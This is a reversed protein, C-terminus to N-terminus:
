QKSSAHVEEKCHKCHIEVTLHVLEEIDALSTKISDPNTHEDVLITLEGAYIQHGISWTHLDCIEHEYPALASRIKDSVAQSQHDLLTATCEQILSRAWWLILAAGLIGMAPDLFAASFYKGAVLAAIALLSTLADTIIHLYIAKFNSDHEHKHAHEHEHDHKHAHKHGHDHGMIFACVLNIALGLCAVLIAANFSIDQPHILRDVSEYAMALAFVVLLLAGTYGALANIKGTGFSFKPNFAHKRIYRYALFSISMALAHAAMHIGDALLAMSGFAIGAVIEGLMAIMTIVIVIKTKGEAPLMRDQGFGHDINFSKKHM